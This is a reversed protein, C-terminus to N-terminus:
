DVSVDAWERGVEAWKRAGARPKPVIAVGIISVAELEAFIEDTAPDTLIGTIM